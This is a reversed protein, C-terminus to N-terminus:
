PAWGTTLRLRQQRWGMLGDQLHFVNDVMNDLLVQEAQRTRRGNSCYLVVHEAGELKELQRAIKNHPINIAGPIHGSKYENFNRVDVVVPQPTKKQLDLLQQPTLAPTQFDDALVLAPAPLLVLLCIQLFLVRVFKFGTNVLKL